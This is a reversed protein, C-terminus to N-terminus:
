GVGLTLLLVDISGITPDQTRAEIWPFVWLFLVVVGVISGVVILSAKLWRPMGSRGLGGQYVPVRRAM